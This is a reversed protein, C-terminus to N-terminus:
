AYNCNPVLGIAFLVLALKLNFRNRLTFNICQLKYLTYRQTEYGWMCKPRSGIRHSKLFTLIMFIAPFRWLASVLGCDPSSM